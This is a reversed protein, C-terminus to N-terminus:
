LVDDEKPGQKRTTAKAAVRELARQAEITWNTTGVVVVLLLIMHILTGITMGFVLGVIGCLVIDNDSCDNSGNHLIFSIYYGLPIGVIWYSFIVIPMAIWQKGCGRIIGSLSIQISDMLVYIALLPITSATEMIVQVNPTFLSPLITHPTFYLICCMLCGLTVSLIGNIIASYKANTPQNHGLGNAVRTAGATGLGYPFLFCTSLISQYITMGSLAIAPYPTMLGGLFIVTESAWWESIAGIGPIALYLYQKVGSLDCIAVKLEPWVSLSTRNKQKQPQKQRFSTNTLAREEDTGVGDDSPDDSEDNDNYYPDINCLVRHIGHKTYYMYYIMCIPQIFQFLVTGLAVGLYGLKLIKLLFLNIPIHFICGIGAAYAPIDAMGISVCFFTLTWNISYFYLGPTLVRLYSQTKEVLELNTNNNDDDDMGIYLLFPKIGIMIWWIFSIPVIILGLVYMGRYMYILPQLLQLELKQQQEDDDDDDEDNDGYSNSSRSTSRTSSKDTLLLPTSEDNDKEDDDHHSGGDDTTGQKRRRRKERMKKKQKISQIYGKSQGALTALASNMGVSFSMGTVNCITTALAASALETSSYLNGVFGLSILWPIKYLIMSTISPMAITMQSKIETRLSGYNFYRRVINSSTDDDDDNTMTAARLM